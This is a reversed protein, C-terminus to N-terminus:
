VLVGARFLHAVMGARDGPIGLKSAIHCLHSKVTSSSLYLRAGIERNSMGEAVLEMIGVERATLGVEAATM